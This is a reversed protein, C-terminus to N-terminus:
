EGIEILSRYSSSMKANSHWTILAPSVFLLQIILTHNQQQPVGGVNPKPPPTLALQTKFIWIVSFGAEYSYSSFPSIRRISLSSSLLM